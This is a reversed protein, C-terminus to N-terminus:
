DGSPFVQPTPPAILEGAIPPAEAAPSSNFIACGNVLLDDDGDGNLDVFVEAINVCPLSDPEAPLSFYIAAIIALGVIFTIAALKMQQTDM